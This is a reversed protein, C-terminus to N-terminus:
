SNSDDISIQRNQIDKDSLLSGSAPLKLKRYGKTNEYVEEFDSIASALKQNKKVTMIQVGISTKTTKVPILSTKIIIARDDNSILMIEYPKKEEESFVAVIPSATSFIGKLKRRVSSTEYSKEPVRVGKGNEFLYVFNYGERFESQISMFIPREGPDMGLKAPVFEGIVSAKCNEFDNIPARYLQAQNTIFFVTDKNEADFM